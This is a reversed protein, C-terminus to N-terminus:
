YNPWPIVRRAPSIADAASTNMLDAYQGPAKIRLEDVVGTFPVITTLPYLNDYTRFAPCAGGIQLRGTSRAVPAVQLGQVRSLCFVGRALPAAFSHAYYVYSGAAM